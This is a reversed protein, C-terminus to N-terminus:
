HILSPATQLVAGAVGPRNFVLLLTLIDKSKNVKFPYIPLITYRIATGIYKISLINM